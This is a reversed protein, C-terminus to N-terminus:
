EYRPHKKNKAARVVTQIFEETKMGKLQTFHSDAFEADVVGDKEKWIGNNPIIQAYHGKNSRTLLLYVDEGSYAFNKHTAFQMLTIVDEKTDGYYVEEVQVKTPTRQIIFEPRDPLAVNNRETAGTDLVKGKMILDVYVFDEELSKTPLYLGATNHHEDSHENEGILLSTGYAVSVTFVLAVITIVVKKM